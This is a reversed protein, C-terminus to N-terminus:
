LSNALNRMRQAIDGRGIEQLIDANDMMVGRVSARSRPNNLNAQLDPITLVMGPTIKDPDLVVDRSALMIVPYYLGDGYYTNAIQFLTDGSRVTYSQAGDLIINGAHRSYMRRFTDDNAQGTTRCSFVLLVCTIMVAFFVVKKM